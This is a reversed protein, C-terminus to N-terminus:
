NENFSMGHSAEEEFQRLGFEERQRQFDLEELDKYVDNKLKEQQNVQTRLNRVLHRSLENDVREKLYNGV